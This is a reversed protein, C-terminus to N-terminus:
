LTPMQPWVSSPIGRRPFIGYVLAGAVPQATQRQLLNWVDHECFRRGSIYLHPPAAAESRRTDEDYTRVVLNLPRGIRCCPPAPAYQKVADAGGLMEGAM